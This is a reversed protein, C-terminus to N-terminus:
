SRQLIADIEEFIRRVALEPSYKQLWERGFQCVSAFNEDTLTNMLSLYERNILPMPEKLNIVICRETNIPVVGYAIYAAFIGSKSVEETSATFFGVRARSLWKVVEKNSTQGFRIIPIQSQSLDVEDLGKGIDLIKTVGLQQWNDLSLLLLRAYMQSRKSETGIVVGIPERRDLPIPKECIGFNSITPMFEICKSKASGLLQIGRVQNVWVLDALEALCRCLIVQLPTFITTHVTNFAIKQRPLEHFYVGIGLGRKKHQVLLRYVTWPVGFRQYGYLVFQVLLFSADIQDVECEFPYVMRLKKYGNIIYLACEFGMPKSAALLQMAYDSVGCSGPSFQPLLIAIKKM